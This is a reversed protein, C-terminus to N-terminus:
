LLMRWGTGFVVINFNWTAPLHHLTLLMVKKANMLDDVKMSNSLDLLFIINAENSGCAEFQPYFTLMCAQFSSCLIHVYIQLGLDLFTWFHQIHYKHFFVHSQITRVTIFLFSYKELCNFLAMSLFHLYLITKLSCNFASKKVYKLAILAVFDSM